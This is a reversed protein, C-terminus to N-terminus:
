SRQPSAVSMTDGLGLIQAGLAILREDENIVHDRYLTAFRGVEEASLRVPRCAAIDSLTVRLHQWAQEISLHEAILQTIIEEVRKVDDGRARARFAPFLGSEQEERHHRFEGDFYGCLAQAVERATKHIGWEPIYEALRTLTTCSAEVHEHRPIPIQISPSVTSRTRTPLSEL